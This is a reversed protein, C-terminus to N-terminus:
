HYKKHISGVHPQHSSAISCVWAFGVLGGLVGGVTAGIPGGIATGAYAGLKMPGFFALQYAASHPDQHTM